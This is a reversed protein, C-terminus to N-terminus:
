ALQVVTKPLLGFWDGSPNGGNLVSSASLGTTPGHFHLLNHWFPANPALQKLAHLYVALESLSLSLSVFLESKVSEAPFKYRGKIAERAPPPASRLPFHSGRRPWRELRVPNGVFKAAFSVFTKGLTFFFSKRRM